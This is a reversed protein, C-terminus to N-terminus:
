AKVFCLEHVSCVLFQTSKGPFKPPLHRAWLPRTLSWMWGVSRTQPGDSHFAWLAPKPNLEPSLQLPLIKGSHRSFKWACMEHTWTWVHMQMQLCALSALPLIWGLSIIGPWTSNATELHTKDDAHTTTAEKLHAPKSLAHCYAPSLVSPGLEPKTRGEWETGM